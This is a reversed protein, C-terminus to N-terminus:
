SNSSMWLCHEWSLRVLSFFILILVCTEFTSANAPCDRHEYHLSDILFSHYVNSFPQPFYINSIFMLCQTNFCVYGMVILTKDLRYRNHVTQRYRCCHFTNSVQTSWRRPWSRPNGFVWGHSWSVAQTCLRWDSFRSFLLCMELVSCVHEHFAIVVVVFVTGEALECGSMVPTMTWLTQMFSADVMLDGSAYSLHQFSYTNTVTLYTSQLHDTIICTFSVM